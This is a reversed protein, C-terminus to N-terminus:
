TTEKMDVKEFWVVGALFVWFAASLDNKFYPVDVLGHIFIYVLAGFLGVALFDNTHKSLIKSYIFSIWLLVVLGFFVIEVWFYM